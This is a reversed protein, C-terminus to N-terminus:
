DGEVGFHHHIRMSRLLDLIDSTAGILAVHGGVKRISNHASILLGIGTSDIMTVNALDITMERAGEAIASRIAARLDPATATGETGPPQVLVGGEKPSVSTKTM